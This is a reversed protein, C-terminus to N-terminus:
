NCEYLSRWIEVVENVDNTESWASRIDVPTKREGVWPISGDTYNKLLSFMEDIGEDKNGYVCYEIGCRIGAPNNQVNWVDSAGWKTELAWVSLAFGPDIQYQESLTFFREADINLGKDIVIKSVMEKTTNIVGVDSDVGPIFPPEENKVPSLYSSQQEQQVLLEKSLKVYEYQLYKVNVGLGIAIALLSFMIFVCNRKLYKTM